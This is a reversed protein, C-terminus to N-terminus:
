KRVGLGTLLVTGMQRMFISKWHLLVSAWSRLLLMSFIFIDRQVVYWRVQLASNLMVTVSVNM